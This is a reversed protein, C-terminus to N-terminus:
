DDMRRRKQTAQSDADDDADDDSSIVIAAGAAESEEPEEYEEQEESDSPDQLLGKLYKAEKSVLEKHARQHEETASPDQLLGKLYEVEKSFVEEHARRHDEWYDEAQHDLPLAAFQKSMDERMQKIEDPYEVVKKPKEDEDPLLEWASVEGCMNELQNEIDPLFEFKKHMTTYKESTAGHKKLLMELKDEVTRMQEKLLDQCDEILKLYLSVYKKEDSHMSIVQLKLRLYEKWKPENWVEKSM